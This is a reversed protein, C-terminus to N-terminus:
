IHAPQNSQPKNDLAVMLTLASEQSERINTFLDKLRNLMMALRLDSRVLRLPDDSRTLQRCCNMQVYQRASVLLFADSQM